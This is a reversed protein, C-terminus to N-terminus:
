PSPGDARPLSQRGRPPATQSPRSWGGREFARPPHPPTQSHASLHRPRPQGQGVPPHPVPYPCSRECPMRRSLGLAGPPLNEGRKRLKAERAHQGVSPWKRTTDIVAHGVQALQNNRRPSANGDHGTPAHRPLIGLANCGVKAYALNVARADHAQLGCPLRQQWCSAQSAEAHSTHTKTNDSHM